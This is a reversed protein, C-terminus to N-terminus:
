RLGERIKSGDNLGSWRPYSFFSKSSPIRSTEEAEHQELSLAQANELRSYVHGTTSRQGPNNLLISATTAIGLSTHTGVPKRKIPHSQISPSEQAPEFPLPDLLPQAQRNTASAQPSLISM